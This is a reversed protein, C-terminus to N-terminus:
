LFTLNIGQKVHRIQVIPHLAYAEVGYTMDEFAFGVECFCNSLSVCSQQHQVTM